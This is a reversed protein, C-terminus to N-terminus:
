SDTEGGGGGLCVDMCGDATQFQASYFPFPGYGQCSQTAKTRQAEQQSGSPRMKSNGGLSVEGTGNGKATPREQTGRKARRMLTERSKEAGSLPAARCGGSRGPPTLLMLNRQPPQRNSPLM